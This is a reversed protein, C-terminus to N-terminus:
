YKFFLVTRVRGGRQDDAGSSRGGYTAENYYPQEEYIHHEQAHSYAPQQQSYLPKQHPSSGRLDGSYVPRQYSSTNTYAM